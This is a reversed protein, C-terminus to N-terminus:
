RENERTSKKKESIMEMIEPDDSSFRKLFYSKLNELNLTLHM